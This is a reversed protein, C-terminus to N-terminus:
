FQVEIDRTLGRAPQLSNNRFGCTVALGREKPRRHGDKTKRSALMEQTHPIQPREWSFAM